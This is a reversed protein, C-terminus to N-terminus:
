ACTYIASATEGDIEFTGFATNAANVGNLSGSVPQPTTDSWIAWGTNRFGVITGRSNIGEVTQVGPVVRTINGDLNWEVAESQGATSGGGSIRGDAYQQPRAGGRHQKITRTTGDPSWILGRNTVIRGADDLGVPQGPGVVVFTRPAAAPWFLATTAGTAYDVAWGAVDGAENIDTAVGHLGAPVPLIQYNLGRYKYPQSEGTADNWTYGAVYRSNNVDAPANDVGPAVDNMKVPTTGFWEVGVIPGDTRGEGVAVTGDPSVGTVGGPRSGAHGPLVTPDV